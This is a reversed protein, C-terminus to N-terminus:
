NDRHMREDREHKEQAAICLTAIPRAKLRGVGIPEGTDDCYGYDGDEIRALAADIKSILKRARDRTRLELAKDMEMAARDGVEPANLTETQLNALTEQSGTILEKRWELLCQQFFALMLPSMYTKDTAPDYDPPVLPLLTASM